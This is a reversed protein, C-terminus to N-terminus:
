ADRFQWRDLFDNLNAHAADGVIWFRGAVGFRDARLHDGSFFNMPAPNGRGDVGNRLAFIDVNSEVDVRHIGRQRWPGSSQLGPPEAKRLDVLQHLPNRFFSPEYAQVDHLYIWIAVRASSGRLGGDSQHDVQEARGKM